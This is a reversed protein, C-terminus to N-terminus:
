PPGPTSTRRTYGVVTPKGTTGSSAHIRVVQERPVAFMGFPYNDRLDAEQDHVPVEGPGGAVEPGDAEGAADFKRPLAARQRLRAGADLAAAGAAAGAARQALRTRDARSRRAFAKQGADDSGKRRESSCSRSARDDHAFARADRRCGQRGPEDGQHRVRRHTRHTGGRPVGGCATARHAPALFDVVIGSAVTVENYSNCAFAFASDALTTIFGGHCIKFGNLMDPRVTMAIRAYGPGVAEIHMGLGRSAADDMFMGLKVAEAITQADQAMSDNM